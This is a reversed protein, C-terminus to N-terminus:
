LAAQFVRIKASSFNLFQTYCLTGIGAQYSGKSFSFLSAPYLSNYEEYKFTQMFKFKEYSALSTNFKFGRLLMEQFVRNDSNTMFLGYVFIFFFDCHTM